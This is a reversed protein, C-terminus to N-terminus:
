NYEAFQWIDVTPPVHYEVDQELRRKDEDDMYPRGMMCSCKVIANIQRNSDDLVTQYTDMSIHYDM